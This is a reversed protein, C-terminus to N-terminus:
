VLGDAGSVGFERRGQGEDVYFASAAGGEFGQLAEQWRAGAGDGPRSLLRLSPTRVIEAPFPFAAAAATAETRFERVGLNGM